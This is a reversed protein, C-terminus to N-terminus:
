AARRNRERSEESKLPTVDVIRFCPTTLPTGGECIFPTTAAVAEFRAEAERCNEAEVEVNMYSTRVYTVRFRSM